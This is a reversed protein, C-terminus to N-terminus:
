SEVAFDPVGVGAFGEVGELVVVDDAGDCEGVLGVGLDECGAAHFLLEADEVEGAAAAGGGGGGVVGGGCGGRGTVFDPGADM